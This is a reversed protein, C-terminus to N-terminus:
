SPRPLGAVAAAEQCLRPAARNRERVSDAFTQGPNFNQVLGVVFELNPSTFHNFYNYLFRYNPPFWSDRRGLYINRVYCGFFPKAIKKEVAEIIEREGATLRMEAPFLEQQKEEKEKAGEIIFDALEKWLPPLDAKKEDIRKALVDRIHEGKKVFAKATPFPFICRSPATDSDM